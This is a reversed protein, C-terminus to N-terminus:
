NGYYFVIDTLLYNKRKYSTFLLCVVFVITKDIQSPVIFTESCVKVHYKSFVLFM